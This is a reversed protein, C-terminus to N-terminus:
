QIVYVTDPVRLLHGSVVASFFRLFLRSFNCILQIKRPSQREHLWTYPKILVERKLDAEIPITDDIVTYYRILDDIIPNMMKLIDQCNLTSNRVIAKISLTWLCTLTGVMEVCVKGVNSRELWDGTPLHIVFAIFLQQFVWLLANDEKSIDSLGEHGQHISGAVFLSSNLM